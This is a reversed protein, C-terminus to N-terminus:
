AEGLIAKLNELHKRTETRIFKCRDDNHDAIIESSAKHAYDNRLAILNKNPAISSSDNYFGSLVDGQLQKGDIHKLIERLVNARAFTDWRRIDELLYALSDDYSKNSIDDAITASRKRNSETRNKLAKVQIKSLFPLFAHLHKIYNRNGLWCDM